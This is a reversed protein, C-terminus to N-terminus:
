ENKFEKYALNYVDYTRSVVYFVIRSGRIFINDIVIHPYPKSDVIITEKNTRFHEFLSGLIQNLAEVGIVEKIKDQKRLSYRM